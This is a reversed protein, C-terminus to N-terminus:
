STVIGRGRRMSEGSTAVMAAVIVSWSRSTTARPLSRQDRRRPPEQPLAPASGRRRYQRPARPVRGPRLEEGDRDDDQRPLDDHPRLQFSSNRIGDGNVTNSWRQCSRPSMAADAHTVSSAADLAEDHGHDDAADEADRDRPHRHQAGRDSRHDGAQLRHWRDRPDRERDDEEALAGARHQEDDHEAGRRRDGVADDVADVVDRREQKRAPRTSPARPTLESRWTTIGAASGETTPPKFCPQANAHRLRM